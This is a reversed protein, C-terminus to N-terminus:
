FFLICGRKVTRRATATKRAHKHAKATRAHTHARARPRQQKASTRTALSRTQGSARHTQWVLLPERAGSLFTLQNDKEELFQTQGLADVFANEVDQQQAGCLKRTLRPREISVKGGSQEILTSTFTNCGTSGSLAQGKITLQPVGSPLAAIDKGRLLSWNTEGTQALAPLGMAGLVFPLLATPLFQKVRKSM